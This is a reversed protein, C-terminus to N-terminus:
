WLGQYLLPVFYIDRLQFHTFLLREPDTDMEPFGGSMPKADGMPIPLAVPHGEMDQIATGELDINSRLNENCFSFVNTMQQCPLKYAVDDQTETLTKAQLVYQSM